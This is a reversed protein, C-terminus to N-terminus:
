ADDVEPVPLISTEPAVYNEARIVTYTYAGGATPDVGNADARMCRDIKTFASM